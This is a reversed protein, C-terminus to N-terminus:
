EEQPQNALTFWVTFSLLENGVVAATLNLQLRDGLTLITEQLTAAQTQGQSNVVQLSAAINRSVQQNNVTATWALSGTAAGSTLSTKTVPVSSVSLHIAEIKRPIDNYTILPYAKVAPSEIGGNLSDRGSAVPLWEGSETGSEQYYYLTQADRDFYRDKRYRPAVTSGEAGTNVPPGPAAILGRESAVQALRERLDRIAQADGGFSAPMGGVLGGNAPVAQGVAVAGSTVTGRPAYGNAAGVTRYNGGGDYLSTQQAQQVQRDAREQQRELRTQQAGLTRSLIPPAM